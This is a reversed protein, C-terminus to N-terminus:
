IAPGREMVWIESDEKTSSSIVLFKKDKTIGIDVYNTPNDDIFISTEELTDLDLKKM